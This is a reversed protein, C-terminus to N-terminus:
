KIRVTNQRSRRLNPRGNACLDVYQVTKANGQANLIDEATNVVENVTAYQFPLHIAYLNGADKEGAYIILSYKNMNDAGTQM